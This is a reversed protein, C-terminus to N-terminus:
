DFLQVYNIGGEIMFKKLAKLQEITGTVKITIPYMKEATSEPEVRAEYPGNEEPTPEAVPAHFEDATAETPEPMTLQDEEEIAQEVEAAHEQAKRLAEQEEERRRREAEIRTHRDRVIQVAGAVNRCERYEALVEDPDPQAAILSLDDRIRDLFEKAQAKLSKETASLTVNIGAYRYDALDAPLNLSERYEEFYARVAAARKERLGDEVARIKKALQRDADAFIDGACSKYVTEFAKYPAEIQSKVAKRRAELEKFQANLDARAKKVEKYTDETCDMALVENVLAQINQQVTRLQEEIIPLQKVVIIETNEM